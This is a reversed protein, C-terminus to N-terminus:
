EEGLQQQVAVDRLTDLMWEYAVRDHAKVAEVHGELWTDFRARADSGKGPAALMLRVLQWSWGYAALASGDQHGIMEAWNRHDIRELLWDSRARATADPVDDSWQEIILRIVLATLRIAWESEKPLRLWGRLQMLAINERFARLEGTERLRGEGDESGALIQSRLEAEEVPFVILGCQRLLTRAADRRERTLRSESELLNLVDLSTWIPTAGTGHDIARLQNFYRDDIVIVDVRESLNFLCRVFGEADDETRSRDSCAVVTGVAIATELKLRLGEIVAEIEVSRSELALLARAEDRQRPSVLIDHGSAQLGTLVGMSRLHSLSVDDVLLDVGPPLSEGDSWPQDSLRLLYSRALAEDGQTLRGSAALAGVLTTGSVLVGSFGSMDALEDGLSGLRTAPGVRIARARDPTALASEIMAGATAGIDGALKANAAVSPEFVRVQGAMLDQLLAKAEAIRSPQHFAMAQRDDFLCRLADHAIHVGGRALLGELVGCVELNILATVDLGIAGATLEPSARVGSFAPIVARKRPDSERRNMIMAALHLELAPRRLLPAAMRLPAEGDRLHNWVTEVSRDWEPQQALLDKLSMQQVPGTEGSLRIAEGLWANAKAAEDRGARVALSYCAILINPDEPERAAAAELLEMLRPSGARSALEAARLLDQASREAKASWEDEVVGILEPWRGSDVLLNVRLARDNADTRKARLAELAEASENFRGQRYDDWAQAARLAVSDPVLDGAATLAEGVRDARGHHELYRVLIEAADRARTERVQDLWLEVIRDSYGEPTLAELLAGRTAADPTERFRKELDAVEAKTDQAIYAELREVLEAPIQDRVEDLRDAAEGLRGAARLLQVDLQIMFEPSIHASISNRHRALYTLSADAGGQRHVLAFRATALEVDGKPKLAERRALNAEVAERNIPIGFSLALPVVSAGSEPDDLTARLEAEAVARRAPNRMALLLRWSSLYNAGSRSGAASAAAAAQRFHEEARDRAALGAATDDFPFDAGHLLPQGQLVSRRFVPASASATLLHAALKHLVPTTEFDAGALAEVGDFARPWAEALALHHLLVYRGDADLDAFAIGAADCWAVVEASEHTRARIQIAVMRLAPTDLPALAELGTAEDSKAALFARVIRTEELDPGAIELWLALDDATAHHVRWRACLALGRRRLSDSVGSLDGTALRDGLAKTKAAVTDPDLYFRGQRLAEIATTAMTDWLAQGGPTEVRAALRRVDTQLAAVMGQTVEVKGAIIREGVTLHRTLSISVFAVAYSFAAAAAGVDVGPDLTKLVEGLAANAEGEITHPNGNMAALVVRQIGSRSSERRMWDRVDPDSFLRPVDSLVAKVPNLLAEHPQKSVGLLVDLAETIERDLSAPAVEPAGPDRRAWELAAAKAIPAVLAFGGKTVAGWIPDM